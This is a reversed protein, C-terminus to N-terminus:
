IADNPTVRPVTAFNNHFKLSNHVTHLLLDLM